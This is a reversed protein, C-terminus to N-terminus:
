KDLESWLNVLDGAMMSKNHYRRQVSKNKKLSSNFDWSKKLARNM